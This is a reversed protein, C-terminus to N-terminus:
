LVTEKDLNYQGMDFFEEDSLDDIEQSAKDSFIRAQNIMKDQM